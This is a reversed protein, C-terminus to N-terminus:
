KKFFKVSRDYHLLLICIYSKLVPRLILISSLPRLTTQSMHIVLSSAEPDSLSVSSTPNDSVYTNSLPVRVRSKRGRNKKM